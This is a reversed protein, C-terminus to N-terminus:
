PTTAQPRPLRNFVAQYLRGDKGPDLGIPVIFLPFAGIQEHEFGYTAQALPLEIPGRFIISFSEGGGSPADPSAASHSSGLETAEILEVEVARGRGLHVRFAEGVHSAFTSHNLEELM